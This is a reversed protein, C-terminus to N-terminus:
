PAPPRDARRQVSLHRPAPDLGDSHDPASPANGSRQDEATM